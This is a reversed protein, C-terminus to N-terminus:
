IHILSLDYEITIEEEASFETGAIEVETGVPGDEPDIEIEGGVVTFEAVARIDPYGYHCVYVYYTGTEVDEDDDGDSLEDPVTFTTEFAGEEDLWTGEKLVEYHTVENDIDDSTDAEDSSFYINAYKDATDTSANFGEGYVEIRDGISGEEPSVDVYRDVAMVPAAALLLALIVAISFIRLVKTHKM